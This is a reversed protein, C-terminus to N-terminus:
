ELGRCVADNPEPNGGPVLYWAPARDIDFGLGIWGTM